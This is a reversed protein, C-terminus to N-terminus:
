RDARTESMSVLETLVRAATLDPRQKDDGFVQYLAEAFVAEIESGPLAETLRM